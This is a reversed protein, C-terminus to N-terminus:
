KRGAAFVAFFDRDDPVLYRTAPQQTNPVLKVPDRAGRGAYTVFTPWESNIDLEMARVAGAHILVAALSDATQFDAAAYVLNGHRDVGVGSRWVRVANGLTAGWYGGARLAASPRGHDVLLPLNQRAFVVDHRPTAGAYWTRVDVSGDRYGILTAYGDTLPTYSHGDAYFGGHGDHYTFGSNFTALLGARASPPVEMPGRPLHSPPEYRGPYLALRTRTHDIWAVYAVIRPYERSPRYATVLVAPGGHVLPGTRAWVGEGHLPQLLPAIRPPVYAVRRTKHLHVVRGVPPLSKLQPGGPKPARREYYIRELTNVLWAGQHLRLWEISRVGLPLSSPELMTSTYSYAPFALVAVLSLFAVRRTSLRSLPM